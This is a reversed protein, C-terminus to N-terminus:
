KPIILFKTANFRRTGHSGQFALEPTKGIPKFVHSVIYTSGISIGVNLLVHEEAPTLPFLGNDFMVRDGPKASNGRAFCQHYISYMARAAVIANAADKADVLSRIVFGQELWFKMTVQNNTIEQPETDSANKFLAAFKPLKVESM